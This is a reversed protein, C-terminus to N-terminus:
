PKNQPENLIPSSVLQARAKLRKKDRKLDCIKPKQAHALAKTLPSQPSKLHTKHPLLWWKAKAITRLAGM